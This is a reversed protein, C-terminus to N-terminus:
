NSNNVNMVTYSRKAGSVRRTSYEITKGNTLYVVQEVELIPSGKEVNLVKVDEDDAGLASFKRFANGLTFNLEDHMYAYISKECIEKTLEPVLKVPMYTHELVIPEGDVMRVRKIEYVPDIRKINLNKQIRENPLQVDFMLVDSKVRNPVFEQCTGKFDDIAVDKEKDVFPIKGRVYTGLGSQKYILGESALIDLAKKVTLRNVKFEKALANQDPLLEGVKYTEDEIRERVIDTVKRYKATM